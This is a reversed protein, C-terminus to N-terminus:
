KCAEVFVRGDVYGAVWEVTSLSYWLDGDIWKPTATFADGAHLELGDWAAFSEAPGKRLTLTDVIVRYCPRETARAKASMNGLAPTPLNVSPQAPMVGCAITLLLLPILLRKM